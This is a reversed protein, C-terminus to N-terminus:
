QASNDPEVTDTAAPAPKPEVVIDPKPKILNMIITALILLGMLAFCIIAICGSQLQKESM